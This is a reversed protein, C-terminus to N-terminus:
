KKTSVVCVWNDKYITDKVEFNNKQLADCVDNVREDIIGSAIFVGGSVIADNIFDMMQIIVDAVINAIIINYGKSAVSKYLNEDTLINGSLVTYDDKDIGNIEANQYAIEIASPEIDIATASNAGFLLSIISLIGTGCGLDLVRSNKNVHKELEVIVLQTTQHLGTGFLHGPNINFVIKNSTDEYDEWEPKILVNKGVNFPKYYKKWNHEWDEDDVNVTEISLRGLDLGVNMSELSVLASKVSGLLEKGFIDETVYFKVRVEESEKNLLEDEVYDAHIKEELSNKLFLKMEEDDEVQFGNIGQEILVASIVEVAESTTYINAEIWKM